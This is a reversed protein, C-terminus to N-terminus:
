SDFGFVIRVHEGDRGALTDIWTVFESCAERASMEWYVLAYAVRPNTKGPLWGYRDTPSTKIVAGYPPEVPEPMLTPDAILCEAFARDEKMRQLRRAAEERESQYFSSLKRAEVEFWAYGTPM